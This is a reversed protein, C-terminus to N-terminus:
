EEENTTMITEGNQRQTVAILNYLRATTYAVISAENENLGACIVDRSASLCETVIKRLSAGYRNAIRRAGREDITPEVDIEGIIYLAWIALNRGDRRLMATKNM